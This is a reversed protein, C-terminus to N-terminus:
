YRKIKHVNIMPYWVDEKFINSDDYCIFRIMNHEFIMKANKVLFYEPSDNFTIEYNSKKWANEQAKNM